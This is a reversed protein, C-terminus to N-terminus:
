QIFVLLLLGANVAIATCKKTRGVILIILRYPVVYPVYPRNAM